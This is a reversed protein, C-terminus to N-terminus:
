LITFGNVSETELSKMMGLPFVTVKLCYSGMQQQGQGQHVTIQKRDRYVQWELYKMYYINWM